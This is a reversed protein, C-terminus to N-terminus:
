TLMEEKLLREWKQADVNWNTSKISNLDEKNPIHVYTSVTAMQIKSFFNIGSSRDLASFTALNTM